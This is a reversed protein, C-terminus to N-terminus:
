SLHGKKVISIFCLSQTTLKTFIFLVSRRLAQNIQFETKVAIGKLWFSIILIMCKAIKLDRDPSRGFEIKPQILRFDWRVIKKLWFRFLSDKESSPKLKEKKERQKIEKKKWKKLIELRYYEERREKVVLIVNTARDDQSGM